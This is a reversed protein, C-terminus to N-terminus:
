RNFLSSHEHFLRTHDGGIPPLQRRQQGVAQLLMHIDDDGDGAGTHQRQQAGPAVPDHQRRRVGVRQLRPINRQIAAAVTLKHQVPHHRHLRIAVGHQSIVLGSALRTDLRVLDERHDLAHIVPFAIARHGM